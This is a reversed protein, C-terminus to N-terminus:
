WDRHRGAFDLFQGSSEPTMADLQALIGRVSAEVLTPASAGGMDTKVWGPNIVASMIGEGRLDVALTRSAMNLGAKSMRYAYAGGSSNDALSGMGVIVFKVRRNRM